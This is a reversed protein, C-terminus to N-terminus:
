NVVTIKFLIRMNHVLIAWTVSLFRTNVFFNLKDNNDNIPAIVSILTLCDNIIINMVDSTILEYVKTHEFEGM